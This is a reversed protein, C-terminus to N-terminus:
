IQKGLYMSVLDCDVGDWGRDLGSKVDPCGNTWEAEDERDSLSVCRKPRRVGAGENGPRM